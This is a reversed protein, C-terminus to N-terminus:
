PAELHIHTIVVTCTNESTEPLSTDIYSLATWASKMSDSVINSPISSLLHWPAIQM